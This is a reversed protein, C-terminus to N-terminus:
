EILQWGASRASQSPSHQQVIDAFRRCKPNRGIANAEVTMDFDTDPHCCRDAPPQAHGVLIRLLNKGKDVIVHAKGVYLLHLFGGELAEQSQGTKILM